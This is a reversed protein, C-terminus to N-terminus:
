PDGHLPDGDMLLEWIDHFSTGQEDMPLSEPLVRAFVDELQQKEFLSAGVDELARGAVVCNGPAGVSNCIEAAHLASDTPPCSTESSGVCNNPAAM